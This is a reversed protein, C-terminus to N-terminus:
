FPAIWEENVPNAMGYRAAESLSVHPTKLLDRVAFIYPSAKPNDGLGPMGLIVGLIPDVFPALWPALLGILVELSVRLIVQMVHARSLMGVLLNVAGHALLGRGETARAKIEPGAQEIASAAFPALRLALGATTLEGPALRFVKPFEGQYSEISAM